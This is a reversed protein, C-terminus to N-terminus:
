AQFRERLLKLVAVMQSEQFMTSGILISGTNSEICTGIRIIPSFLSKAKNMESLQKLAESSNPLSEENISINIRKIVSWVLVEKRNVLYHCLSVTEANWSLTVFKSRHLYLQCLYAITFLVSVFLAESARRDPLTLVSLIIVLLLFVLIGLVLLFVGKNSIQGTIQSKTEM